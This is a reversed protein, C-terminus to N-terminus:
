AGNVIPSFQIILTFVTIIDDIEFLETATEAFLILTHFIILLIIIYKTLEFIAGLSSLIHIKKFDM